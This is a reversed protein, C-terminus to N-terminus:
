YKQYEKLINLVLSRTRKKLDEKTSDNIITFDAKEILEKLGFKMERQDRLKLEKLSKPDDKRSRNKIIHYRKKQSITIAIVPFKWHSRFVKVEEMSRLGDIFFVNDNQNKILEVCKKAIIGKGYKERLNKAVKGLNEDILPMNIKQVENRVIDGMIIIRGLDEISKMATSKGSGPLGCFGLLKKM